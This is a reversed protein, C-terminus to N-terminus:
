SRKSLINKLNLWKTTHTVVKKHSWLIGNYPHTYWRKNIREDSPPCKLQKWKKDIIFLTAIFM